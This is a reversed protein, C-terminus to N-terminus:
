SQYGMQLASQPRLVGVGGPKASEDLLMGDLSIQPENGSVIDAVAKGSGMALTFGLAGHGVNLFFNSYRTPGVIPTGLPTAPRLGCWPQVRSFDTIRPFTERLADLLTEIRDEAINRSEGGIEVFGAARLAGDLPAYVIKNAYDTISLRPGDEPSALPVTVSYGRLPYIPLDIGIPLALKRGDVGAALVYADGDIVGNTTELGIVRNSLSRIRNVATEALTTFKSSAVLVRNLELCFRYCDATEESPTFIGGAIRVKIDRLSPDIRCCAEVDLAQQECGLSKQYDLQSLASSWSKESSYIVLKGTRRYSFSLKEKSAIEQILRRSYFSLKLLQQTTVRSQEKSCARLFSLFWRWQHFDFQPRLRVPADRSLLLSPLETFVSPSALPAVYSYSLQSGNARSAGSALDRAREIM